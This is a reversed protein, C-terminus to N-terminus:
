FLKPDDPNDFPKGNEDVERRFRKSINIFYMSFIVIACAALIFVTGFMDVWATELFSGITIIVMGVTVVLMMYGLFRCMRPIDYRAKAAEHMNKVGMILFSGRGTLLIVNMTLIIATAIALIM